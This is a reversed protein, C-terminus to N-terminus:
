PCVCSTLLSCSVRIAQPSEDYNVLDCHFSYGTGWGSMIFQSPCSHPSVNNIHFCLCVYCSSIWHRCPILLSKTKGCCSDTCSLSMLSSCMLWNGTVLFHLFSLGFGFLIGNRPSWLGLLAVVLWGDGVFSDLLVLFVPPARVRWSPVPLFAGSVEYIMYLSLAVVSFNYLVLVGKLDFAKRNEMIRPGLSTVFYIYAAIIITQPLPSSMLFWNETRSDTSSSSRDCKLQLCVVADVAMMRNHFTIWRKHYKGANQIFEDYILAASSKINFFEM